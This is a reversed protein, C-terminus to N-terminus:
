VGATMRSFGGRIGCLVCREGWGTIMLLPTGDTDRLGRKNRARMTRSIPQLLSSSGLVEMSDGEVRRRLGEENAAFDDGDVSAVDGEVVLGDGAKHVGHGHGVLDFVGADEGLEVGAVADGGTRAVWLRRRSGRGWSSLM